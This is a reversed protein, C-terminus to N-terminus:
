PRVRAPRLQGANSGQGLLQHDIRVRNAFRIGIQNALPDQFRVLALAHEDSSAPGNVGLCLRVRRM